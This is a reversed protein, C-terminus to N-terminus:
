GVAQSPRELQPGAEFEVIALLDKGLVHNGAQRAPRRAVRHAQHELPDLVLQGGDVVGREFPHQLLRIGLHQQRQALVIRGAREHHGLADSLGIWELLDRLVDAAPRHLKCLAFPDGAGLGHELFEGVVHRPLLLGRPEGAALIHEDVAYFPDHHRIGGSGGGGQLVAFNIPPLIRDRVEHRDQLLVAVDGDIDGVREAVDAREAHVM